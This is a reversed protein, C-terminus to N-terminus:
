LKKNITFSIGLSIKRKMVDYFYLREEKSFGIFCISLSAGLICVISNSFFRIFGEEVNVIIFFPIIMSFVAVIAVNLVVNKLFYLPNLSVMRKLMYLRLGLCIISIFISAYIASDPSYGLKLLLYAIPFCIMQVGGVLLQYNKINGTALMLTILTYSVAEILGMLLALRVFVVTYKPVIKLWLELIYHTEAFIPLSLILLLFCSYKAGRFVLSMYQTKNGAAFNKTIGPNIATMFNTVFQIVASNVQMSIGRAANVAPGCFINFLVNLGQDRLLGSAAGIFNWGSFSFIKKILSINWIFCFKCEVFKIKCYWWYLLCIIISLITILFTYYILRDQNSISIICAVILIGVAQVIGIYAFASMKEHAVITANYPVALLNVLFSIISLQYVWNSAILRSDPITMQQNLFWLGITEAIVFVILAIIMQIILATSFIFNLNKNGNAGMEYTLFRSIAVTLSNSILGFMAVFGGVATYLGYDEVGLANLIVRSAYLNVAMILIQRFFLYLTNKAIRKNNVSKITNDM